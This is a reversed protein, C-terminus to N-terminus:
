NVARKFEETQSESPIWEVRGNDSKGIFTAKSGAYAHYPLIDVGDCNKLKKAIQAVKEYHEANSNVGNVLVCRLRIRAGLSDLLFLNEIIRENSVGTYRKHREPDTDKLDFLFLDTYEASRSIVSQDPM